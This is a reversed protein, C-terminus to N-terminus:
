FDKHSFYIEEKLRQQQKAKAQMSALRNQVVGKQPM